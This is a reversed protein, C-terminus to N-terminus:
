NLRGYNQSFANTKKTLSASEKSLFFGLIKKENADMQEQDEREAALKKAVLPM